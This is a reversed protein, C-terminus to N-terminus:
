NARSPSRLYFKSRWDPEHENLFRMLKEARQKSREVRQELRELREEVSLAEGVSLPEVVELSPPRWGRHRKDLCGEMLDFDTELDVLMAELENLIENADAELKSWQRREDHNLM